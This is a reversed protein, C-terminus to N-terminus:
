YGIVTDTLIHTQDGAQSLPNLIQRQWLNHRLDCIHSPGLTATATTYAQLESKVELKPVEMHQLHPELFFCFLNNQALSVKLVLLFLEIHGGRLQSFM